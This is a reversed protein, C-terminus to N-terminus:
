LKPALFLERKLLFIQFPFWDPKVNAYCKREAFEKAHTIGCMQGLRDSNRNTIPSESDLSREAKRVLNEKKRTSALPLSDKFSVGLVSFSSRSGGSLTPDLSLSAGSGSCHLCFDTACVPTLSEHFYTCSSVGWGDCRPWVSLPQERRYDPKSQCYTTTFTSVSM